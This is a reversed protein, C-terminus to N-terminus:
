KMLLALGSAMLAGAVTRRFVTESMGHHFRNGIFIGVLMPPFLLAAVVLVERDFEGVSWYGAGRVLTLTLLIATMTARYRDKALRVADFYVAFFTSGMTGVVTGTMGGAFGGFLAALRPPLQAKNGRAFTGWLSYLGYALVFAGVWKTLAAASLLTFVYLGIAIGLLTGPVLRRLEPWAINHRDGGILATGAALAILSWAPVLVKLPLVLALLPLAAAAGFGSAGRASYAILMVVCCYVIALTSLPPIAPLEL